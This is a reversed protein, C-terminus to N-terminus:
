NGNTSWHWAESPLNYFGFRAANARLWQFAPSSRSSIVGGNWTFDIALGQEHMSQGPRATPPSCQSAPKEYVDYDSTGCNARRTAVQQDSSRYGNGGLVYGDQQASALMSELQSAISTAVEIGRVVTTSVSGRGSGRSARPGRAARGPGAQRSLAQERAAIQDALQKDLTSLSASEALASELRQEVEDAVQQKLQRAAKVSQLRREADRRRTVALGAAQEAALQQRDLDERAARLQEAATRGRGVAIDLLERRSTAEALSKADLTVALSHSPGQVYAQVAFERLTHEAEALKARTRSAAARADAATAQAAEAAQRASRAAADQAQVNRDIQELARSVDTDSARLADVEAAKRAREQQVRRREARPDSSGRAAAPVAHLTTALAVVLVAARSALRRPYPAPVRMPISVVVTADDCLSHDSSPYTPAM